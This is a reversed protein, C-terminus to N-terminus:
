SGLDDSTGKGRPCGNDNASRDIAIGGVCAQSVLPPRRHIASGVGVVAPTETLFPQAFTTPRGASQQEDISASAADRATWDSWCSRRISSRSHFGLCNLM